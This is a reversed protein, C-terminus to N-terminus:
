HTAAEATLGEEGAPGELYRLRDGVTCTGDGAQYPAVHVLDGDAYEALCAVPLRISAYSEGTVTGTVSRTEFFAAMTAGRDDAWARFAAVRDLIAKGVRTRFATTSLGVEEGWVLVEADAVRDAAALARVREAHDAAPTAGSSLSRVYLELRREDPTGSAMVSVRHNPPFDRIIEQSQYTKESIDIYIGTGDRGNRL